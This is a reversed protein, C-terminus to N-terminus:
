RLNPGVLKTGVEPCMQRLKPGMLRQEVRKSKLRPSITRTGRAGHAASRQAACGMLSHSRRQLPGRAEAM